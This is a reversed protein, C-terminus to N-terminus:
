MKKKAERARFVSFCKEAFTPNATPIYAHTNSGPSSVSLVQAIQNQTGAACRREGKRSNEADGDRLRSQKIRGSLPSSSSASSPLLSLFRGFSRGFSRGVSQSVSQADRGGRACLASM